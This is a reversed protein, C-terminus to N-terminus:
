SSYIVRNTIGHIAIARNAFHCGNQTMLQLVAFQLTVLQLAVFQLAVNTVNDGVM